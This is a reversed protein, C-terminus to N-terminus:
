YLNDLLQGQKIYIKLTPELAKPILGTTTLITQSALVSNLLADSRYNDLESFVDDLLLIPDENTENRYLAHFGVKLAYASTRQEGQSGNFRIPHENLLIELDDRHPGVGNSQRRLDVKRTEKLNDILDGQWSRKYSLSIINESGSIDKYAQNIYPQIQTSISERLEVLRTGFNSLQQDWVDLTSIIEPTASGGSQKLLVSRQKLIKEVNAILSAGKPYLMEINRDLFERRLSPAGRVVEIDQASFITTPIVNSITSVKSHAQKNILFRDRNSRSMSAEVLIERGSSSEFLGRIVADDQEYRIIVDKNAGRFSNKNSLFGIAELLSTKGQGNNGIIAFTGTTKPEFILEKYNRFDRLELRKLYM